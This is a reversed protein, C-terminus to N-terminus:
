VMCVVINALFDHSGCVTVRHACTNQADKLRDAIRLRLRSMKVRREGRSAVASSTQPPPQADTAGEPATAAPSAAAVDRAPSPTPAPADEKAGGEQLHGAFLESKRINSAM